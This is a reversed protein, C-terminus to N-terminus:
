RRSRTGDASGRMELRGTWRRHCHSRDRHRGDWFAVPRSETQDTASHAIRRAHMRAHEIALPTTAFLHREHALGDYVGLRSLVREHQPKVGSLLVSIGTGGTPHHHRRPRQGRDCRHDHDPCASCSLACM